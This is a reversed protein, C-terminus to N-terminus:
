VIVFCLFFGKLLVHATFAPSIQLNGHWLSMFCHRIEFGQTLLGHIISLYLCPLVPFRHAATPWLPRLVKILKTGTFM